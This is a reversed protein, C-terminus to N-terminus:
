KGGVRETTLTCEILKDMVHERSTLKPRFDINHFKIDKTAMEAVLRFTEIDIKRGIANELKEKLM